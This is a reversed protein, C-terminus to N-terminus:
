IIILRIKKLKNKKLEKITLPHPENISNCGKVWYPLHYDEIITIPLYYISCYGVQTSIAIKMKDDTPLKQYYYEVPEITLGIKKKNKCLFNFDCAGIELFDLKM